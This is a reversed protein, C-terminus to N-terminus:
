GFKRFTPAAYVFVELLYHPHYTKSKMTNNPKLPLVVCSPLKLDDLLFTFEHKFVKGSL